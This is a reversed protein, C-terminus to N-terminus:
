SSFIYLKKKFVPFLATVAMWRVILNNVFVHNSYPIKNVGLVSVLCGGGEGPAKERLLRSGIMGALGDM